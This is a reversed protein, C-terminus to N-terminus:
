YHPKEPNGREAVCERATGRLSSVRDNSVRHVTFDTASLALLTQAPLYFAWMLVISVTYLGGVPPFLNYILVNVDCVLFLLMGLRSFITNTRPQFAFFTSVTVSIILAGYAFCLASTLAVDPNTHFLKQQLLIIIIFLAAAGIGVPLLWQKRYRILACIHAGLFVFVGAAFYDTFLLFFDAGLTFCFVVAQIRAAEKRSHSFTFLCILLCSIIAPYKFVGDLFLPTQSFGSAIRIDLILIIIYLVLNLCVLVFIRKDSFFKM